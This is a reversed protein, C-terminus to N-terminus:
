GGYWTVEIEAEEDGGMWSMFKGFAVRSKVVALKKNIGGDEEDNKVTLVGLGLGLLVCGRTDEETNGPHFLIRSRGEVGTIEYTPYGHRYYITKRVRYVGAPICSEGPENDKWEEELTFFTFAGSRGPVTLMGFTGHESALIRELHLRKM